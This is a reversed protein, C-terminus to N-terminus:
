GRGVTVVGLHAVAGGDSWCGDCARAWDDDWGVPLRYDRERGYTRGAAGGHLQAGDSKPM